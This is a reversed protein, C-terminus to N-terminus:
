LFLGQNQFEEIIKQEYEEYTLDSIELEGDDMIWLQDCARILNRNHSSIFIIGDYCKLAKILEEVTEIDLHNTPEDLILISSKNLNLELLKLKVKEGGSLLKIPQLHTSSKLNMNSLAARIEEFKMEPFSETLYEVCTRDSNTFSVNQDFYGIRGNVTIAGLQPQIEGVLLKLLTSKGSGNKGVLSIMINDDYLEFTVDKIAQKSTSNYSENNSNNSYWSFYVNEFIIKNNKCDVKEFKFPKVDNLRKPRAKAKEKNDKIKQQKEQKKAHIHKSREM